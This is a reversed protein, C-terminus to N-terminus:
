AKRETDKAPGGGSWPPIYLALAIGPPTHCLRIPFEALWRDLALREGERDTDDLVIAAGPALRDALAPLAPYRSRELGPDGAPPGDVLLLEVGQKPLHDLAATDYWGDRLPADIVTALGDDLGEEALADRTTAAWEPSHELAWVHGAGLARLARAITVTSLGSGCEVVQTRGEGVLSAVLELAEPRLSWASDFGRERV